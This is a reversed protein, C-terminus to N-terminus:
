KIEYCLIVELRFFTNTVADSVLSDVPISLLFTDYDWESSESCFVKLIEDMRPLLCYAIIYRYKESEDRPTIGVSALERMIIDEFHQWERANSKYKEIEKAAINFAPLTGKTSLFEMIRTKIEYKDSMGSTQM